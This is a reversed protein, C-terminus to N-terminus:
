RGQELIQRDQQYPLRDRDGSTLVMIPVLRNGARKQYTEYGSWRENAKIWLRSREEGAAEYSTYTGSYNHLLVEAEPTYKLNYYWGPHRPGGGNSAVIVIRDEDHFFLLATERKLGSKAGTTTLLLAPYGWPSGASLRGKTMKLLFPDIHSAANM